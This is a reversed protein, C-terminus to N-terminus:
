ANKKGRKAQPSQNLGKAQLASLIKEPTMPLEKMRVGTAQYIANAIAPSTSVLAPEGLGKAGYPNGPDESEVLTVDYEPFDMSGFVKYDRFDPNTIAGGPGLKLEELLAAGMGQLIGGQVQGEAMIPHMVRGCDHAAVVRNVRVIGTEPDFTVHAVQAAFPYGTSVDGYRTKPDQQVTPPDYTGVGVIPQGGRRYTSIKIADALSVINKMMSRSKIQGGSFILDEEAVEYTQTIVQLIKKKADEAARKVAVSGINTTRSSYAGLAFPSFDTDVPAVMVQDMSVGFEEAAVQALVTHAGQGVDSEGTLLQISGDEDVKVIASSGDYDGYGRSGSVHICCAAGLGQHAPLQSRKQDWQSRQRVTELCEKLGDTRISWGHITIDGKRVLNRLRFDIPDMKLKEALIDMMSEMAFHMQPNGLGRYAGAPITNTYVITAKTHINPNRYKSDARLSMNNVIRLTNGAYAGTDALIETEKGLIQGQKSVGMKIKIRAAVRRRGAFFEESASNAMQVPNGTIRALAACLVHISVLFNKGGFAAGVNPQHLRVNRLPLGLAKALEQRIYFPRMTPIWVELRGNADVRALCGNPELFACHEWSTKFTEEAVLDAEQFAKAVDGRTIEFQNLVNRPFGEHIKVEDQAMAEEPTLFAPLEEYDVRILELADTATEDDAAAVAAVADGVFRVKDSCLVFEDKIGGRGISIPPLDKATIVAKVGPIRLARAFDINKIRGHALPSHLIRGYLMQPLHIDQFYLAEGRVRSIANVQPVAKGIVQYDAM